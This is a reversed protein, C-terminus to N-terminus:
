VIGVPQFITDYTRSVRRTVAGAAQSAAIASATTTGARSRIYSVISKTLLPTAANTLSRAHDAQFGLAQGALGGLVGLLQFYQSWTRFAQARGAKEDQMELVSDAVGVGAGWVVGKIDIARM